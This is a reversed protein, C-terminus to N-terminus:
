METSSSQKWFQVRAIVRHSCLSREHCPRSVSSHAENKICADSMRCTPRRWLFADDRLPTRAMSMIRRDCTSRRPAVRATGSWSDTCVRKQSHSRFVAFFHVKLAVSLTTDRTLEIHIVVSTWKTFPLIGLSALCSRKMHQATYLCPGHLIGRKCQQIYKIM